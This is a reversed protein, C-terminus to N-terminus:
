DYLAFCYLEACVQDCLHPRRGSVHAKHVSFLRRLPPIGLHPLCPDYFVRVTCLGTPHARDEAPLDRLNSQKGARPSCLNPLRVRTRHGQQLVGLRREARVPVAREGRGAATQRSGQQVAENAPRRRPAGEPVQELQYRDDALLLNLFDARAIRVVEADDPQAPREDDEPPEGHRPARSLEVAVM